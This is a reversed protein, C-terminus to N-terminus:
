GQIGGNNEMKTRIGGMGKWAVYLGSTLGTPDTM